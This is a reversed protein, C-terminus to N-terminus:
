SAARQDLTACDTCEDTTRWHTHRDTLTCCRHDCTTTPAPKDALRQRRWREYEIRHRGPDDGIPNTDTWRAYAKRCADCYGNRIPDREGGAIPRECAKCEGALSSERKIAQDGYAQLYDLWREAHQLIGAAESLAGFLDRIQNGVPDPQPDQDLHQLAATETPRAIDSTHGESTSNTIGDPRTTFRARQDLQTLVDPTLRKLLHELNNRNRIANRGATSPKSM